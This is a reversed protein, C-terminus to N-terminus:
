SENLSFIGFKAIENFIESGGKFTVSDYTEINQHRYGPHISHELRRGIRVVRIYQVM